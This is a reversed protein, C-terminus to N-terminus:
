AIDLPGFDKKLQIPCWIAALSAATTVELGLFLWSYQSSSLDITLFGKNDVRQTSPTGFETSEEEVQAYTDAELVTGTLADRINKDQWVKENTFGNGGFSGLTALTQYALHRDGDSHYGYISLTGAENAADTGVVRLRIKNYPAAYIAGYGASQSEAKLPITPLAGNWDGLTCWLRWFPQYRELDTLAM